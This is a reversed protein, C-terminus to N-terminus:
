TEIAISEVWFEEGAIVRVRSSACQPCPTLDSDLTYEHGCNLCALRAPVRNFHLTAGKCLAGDNEASIIDWYFQISDDVISSLRGIVLYIDTVRSAGAKRAHELAINLISESVALEHM